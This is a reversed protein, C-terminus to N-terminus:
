GEFEVRGNPDFQVQGERWRIPAVSEGEALRLMVEALNDVALARLGVYSTTLRCNIEIVVDESGDAAKGLVLDVGCYGRYGPLWTTLSRTLRWARKALEPPLPLSGGRYSFGRDGGLMQLAPPLSMLEDPGCLFAMSAPTGAVHEQVLWRDDGPIAEGPQLLRVGLSGAGYRPKLVYPRSDLRDGEHESALWTRPAPVKWAELLGALNWKDALQHVLHSSPGLLRGGTEEVWRCRTELIGDFEPAIVLSWDAAGVAAKFARETEAGLELTMVEVGDTREFDQVIAELMARGESRVSALLGTGELQACAYEYIFVRM